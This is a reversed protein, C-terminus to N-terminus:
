QYTSPEDSDLLLVNRVNRLRASRRPSPTVGVGPDGVSGADCASTLDSGPDARVEKLQVSRGSVGRSLFEKELFDKNQAVFM